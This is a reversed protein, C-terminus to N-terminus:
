KAKRYILLCIYIRSLTNLAMPFKFSSMEGRMWESGERLFIFNMQKMAPVVNHGCNMLTWLHWEFLHTLPILQTIASSGVMGSPSVVAPLLGFGGICWCWRDRGATINLEGQQSSRQLPFMSCWGGHIQAGNRQGAKRQIQSAEGSRESASRMEDEVMKRAWALQMEWRAPKVVLAEERIDKSGVKSGGVTEEWVAALSFRKLKVDCWM